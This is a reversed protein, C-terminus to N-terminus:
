ASVISGKRGGQGRAGVWTAYLLALHAAALAPVLYCLYYPCECLCATMWRRRIPAAAPSWIRCRAWFPRAARRRRRSM